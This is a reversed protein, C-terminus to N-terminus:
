DSVARSTTAPKRRRAHGAGGLADILRSQLVNLLGLLRGPPVRHVLWWSVDASFDTVDLVQVSSRLASSALAPESSIGIGVGRAVMATRFESDLAEVAVQLTLGVAEFTRQILRRFGCMDPSVVWPYAALQELVPRRPVGLSPAAICLMPRTALAERVLDRPPEAGEALSIVAADLRGSEVQQVLETSWATTVRLSVKPFNGHLEAFPVALAQPALFPTVGLKLDGAFDGETAVAARLEAVSSLVRRAMEYAQRGEVTPQLPKSQRDLLTARLTEELSQVRRSIGPQTLNLRSAAAVISGTEVVAAFAELDHTNM